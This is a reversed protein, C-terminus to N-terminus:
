SACESETLNIDKFTKVALQEPANGDDDLEPPPLEARIDDIAGLGQVQQCVQVCLNCHVCKEPNRIIFRTKPRMM